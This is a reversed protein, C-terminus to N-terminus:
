FYGRDLVDNEEPDRRTLLSQLHGVFRSIVSVRVPNQDLYALYESYRKQRNTSSSYERRVNSAMRKGRLILVEDIDTGASSIPTMDLYECILYYKAGPM